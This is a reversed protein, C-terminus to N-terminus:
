PQDPKGKINLDKIRNRIKTMFEDGPDNKSTLYNPDTEKWLPHGIFSKYEHHGIVYEIDYKSKLYRILAENADLQKKTLPANTGGVNEVGIACYNLGIVHRAFTTEPLQRFIVGDRDVLFQASVNLSSAGALGKRAGPLLTPNMADFSKELSPIATWHLVIIKPVITASDKIIGHRAKLYEVSLREREKDFIVPKNFTRFTQAGACGSLTLVGLICILKIVIKM